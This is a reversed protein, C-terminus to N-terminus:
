NELKCIVMLFAGLFNQNGIVRFKKAPELGLAQVNIQDNAKLDFVVDNWKRPLMVEYEVLSVMKEAIEDKRTNREKPIPLCPVNTYSSSRTETVRGGVDKTENASKIDCLYMLGKGEVKAFVGQVKTALSELTAM